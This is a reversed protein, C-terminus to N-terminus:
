DIGSPQFSIHESISRSAVTGCTIPRWAGRLFDRIARLRHRCHRQVNGNAIEPLSDTGFLGSLPQRVLRKEDCLLFHLVGRVDKGARSRILLLRLAELASTPINGINRGM